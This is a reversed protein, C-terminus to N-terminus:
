EGCQESGMGVKAREEQSAEATCAGGRRKKRVEHNECCEHGCNGTRCCGNNGCARCIVSSPVLCLRCCGGFDCVCFGQCAGQGYDSPPDDKVVSVWVEGDREQRISTLLTHSQESLLRRCRISRSEGDMDTVFVFRLFYMPHDLVAAVHQFYWEATNDKRVRTCIGEPLRLEDGTAAERFRVHPM